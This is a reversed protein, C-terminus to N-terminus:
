AYQVALPKDADVASVLVDPDIDDQIAKRSITNMRPHAALWFVVKGVFENDSEREAYRAIRLAQNVIYPSKGRKGLMAIGAKGVVAELKSLMSAYKPPRSTMGNAIAELAQRGTVDMRTGNFKAWLEDADADVIVVPVEKLDLLKAATWRRHGDIITGSRDVLIPAFEWFGDAEISDRLDGISRLQVRQAPNWAAPKLEDTKVYCTVTAAAGLKKVVGNKSLM